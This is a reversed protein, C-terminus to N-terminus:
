VFFLWGALAGGLTFGGALIWHWWEFDIESSTAPQDTSAAAVRPRRKRRKSPRVEPLHPVNPKPEIPHTRVMDTKTDSTSETTEVPEGTLEAVFQRCTDPRHEVDPHLARYIAWEVRGSLDPVLRRVPELENMAKKKIIQIASRAAFPCVGTLAMYLTAGLGYVDARRDIRKADNFQEPAMFNPTGLGQGTRTLDLDSDTEKVLGFDALKVTGDALIMINDPKVDRHILGQAHAYDLADAVQRIIDVAESERIPGSRDIREGLSEGDVYEMVCFPGSEYYGFDLMRVIGPHDLRKAAEFEQRFRRLFVPDNTLEPSILKVIVTEDTSVRRAKYILAMGSEAVKELIEYTAATEPAQEDHHKWSLTAESRDAGGRRSLRDAHRFKMQM